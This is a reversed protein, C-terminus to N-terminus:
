LAELEVEGRDLEDFAEGQMFGPLYSYGILEHTGDSKERVIIPHDCVLFVYVKEGNQTARPALGFYGKSTYFLALNIKSGL